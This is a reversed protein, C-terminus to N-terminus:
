SRDAVTRWVPHRLRRDRTIGSHKVEAALSPTVWTADGAEAEPIDHVPPTKRVLRELRTRLQTLEADSFGTGVRGAYSLEGDDDTMALLLSGFTKARGGKGQRWGIVVVDAHNAHKIKVWDDTRRGPLYRSQCHKAILGELSLEQSIELAEELVGGLDGPVQIHDGPTVSGLLIERRRRYPLQITQGHEACHLIDFVMYHVPHREAARSIERQTTLRGRQQLRGFDPRHGSSLAVVEGDLVTGPDALDKLEQLEPFTETLDKGNRSRLRVGDTEVRALM